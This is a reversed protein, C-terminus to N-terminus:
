TKEQGILSFAIRQLSKIHDEAQRLAGASGSGESPRFGVRWLEDMLQQCEDNQLTFTPESYHSGLHNDEKIERMLIPDGVALYNYQEVVLRFDMGNRIINQWLHFRQAM